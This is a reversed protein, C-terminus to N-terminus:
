GGLKFSMITAWMFVTTSVLSSFMVASTLILTKIDDKASEIALYITLYLSIASLILELIFMM